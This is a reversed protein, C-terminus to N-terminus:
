SANALIVMFLVGAFKQFIRPKARSVYGKELDQEQFFKFNIQPMRNAEGRFM